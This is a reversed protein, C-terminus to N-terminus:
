HLLNNFSNERGTWYQGTKVRWVPLFTKFDGKREAYNAFRETRCSDSTCAWQLFINESAPTPPIPSFKFVFCHTYPFPFTECPNTCDSGDERWQKRVPTLLLVVFFMEPSGWEEESKRTVWKRQIRKDPISIDSPYFFSFRINLESIEAPFWSERFSFVVLWSWDRLFKKLKSVEQNGRLSSINM